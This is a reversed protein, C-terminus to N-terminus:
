FQKVTTMFEEELKRVHQVEQSNQAWKWQQRKDDDSMDLFCLDVLYANTRVVNKRSLMQVSTTGGCIKLRNNLKAFESECGLNTFLAYNMKSNEPEMTESGTLPNFFKM